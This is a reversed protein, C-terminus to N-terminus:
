RKLLEEYRVLEFGFQVIMDRLEPRTLMKKEAERSDGLRTAAVPTKEIDGPHVMWEVREAPCTELFRRVREMNPRGTDEVGFLTEPQALGAREYVRFAQRGWHLLLLRRVRAAMAVGPTKVRFDECTNRVARIGFRSAVRAVMEPFPSVAHFHKHSDIHDPKVGRDLAWQM